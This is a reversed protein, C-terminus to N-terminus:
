APWTAAPAPSPSSSAGCTTPRSSGACTPGSSSPRASPSSRGAPSCSASWTSGRRCRPSPASPRGPRPTSSPSAAAATSWPGTSARGAPTSCRGSGRGARRPWTPRCSRATTAPRRPGTPPWGRGPRTVSSTSAAHGGITHPPRIPPIIHGGCRARSSSHQHIQSHQHEGLVEAHGLQEAGLDLVEAPRAGHPLGVVLHAGDSSQASAAMMSRAPSPSSSRLRRRTSHGRRRTSAMAVSASWFRGGSGRSGVLHHHLRERDGVDDLRDALEPGVASPEPSRGECRRPTRPAPRRDVARPEGGRLLRESCRAWTCTRPSSSSCSPWRNRWPSSAAVSTSGCRTRRHRRPSSWTPTAAPAPSRRSSSPCVAASVRRVRRHAGRPPVGAGRDRASPAARRCRHRGAARQRVCRARDRRQRRLARAHACPSRRLARRSRGPGLGAHELPRAARRAPHRAPRLARRHTGSPRDRRRPDARGTSLRRLEVAPEVAERQCLVSSSMARSAQLLAWYPGSSSRM